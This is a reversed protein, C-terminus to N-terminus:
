KSNIQRTVHSKDLIKQSTVQPSMLFGCRSPARPRWSAISKKKKEKEEKRGRRRESKKKKEGREDCYVRKKKEKTRKEERRGRRGESKKKALKKEGREDGYVREKQDGRKKEERKKKM